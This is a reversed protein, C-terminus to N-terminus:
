CAAACRASPTLLGSSARGTGDPTMAAPGRDRPTSRSTLISSTSWCSSAITFAPTAASGSAWPDSEHGREYQWSSFDTHYNEGGTEFLHPHDSILATTVGVSRLSWTLADEWVEISGWPRWPFDLAGCLIDHRAPICPLSGGYHREFVVSRAALRDLSPTDFEGSGYAGLLRRNLSDLLVVIVNPPAAGGAPAQGGTEVVSRPRKRTLKSM